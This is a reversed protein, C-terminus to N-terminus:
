LKSTHEESRSINILWNCGFAHFLLRRVGPSNALQQDALLDTEFYSGAEPVNEQRSRKKRMVQVPSTRHIEDDPQDNPANEAPQGANQHPGVSLLANQKIYYDTNDTGKKCSRFLTTYPFLTDTRTSRPPRRIM